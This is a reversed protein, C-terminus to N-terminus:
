RYVPEAMTKGDTEFLINDDRYATGKNKHEISDDRDTRWLRIGHTAMYGVVESDPLGHQLGACIVAHVPRVLAYFATDYATVSGHHSVKLVTSRLTDGYRRVLSEEVSRHADGMFLFSVSDYQIRLVISSANSKTDDSPKPPNANYFLIRTDLEGGLDIRGGLAPILGLQVPDRWWHLGARTVRAAASDLSDVVGSVQRYGPEVTNLVIFKEYVARMGGIHDADTHTVIVWDITDGLKLGLSELYTVAYDHGISKVDGADILMRRGDMRHNGAVSDNPTQIFICDGHGVDIVHVHLKSDAAGVCSVLAALVAVAAVAAALASKRVVTTVPPM